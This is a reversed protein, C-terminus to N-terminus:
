FSDNINCRVFKLNQESIQYMRRNRSFRNEQNCVTKCCCGPGLLMGTHCTKRETHPSSGQHERTQTLAVAVRPKLRRKRSSRYYLRTCSTRTDELTSLDVYENGSHAGRYLNGPGEKQPVLLSDGYWCLMDCCANHMKGDRGQHRNMRVRAWKNRKHFHM